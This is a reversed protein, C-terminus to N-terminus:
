DYWDDNIKLALVLLGIIVTNSVLLALVLLVLLALVLLGILECQIAINYKGWGIALWVLIPVRRRSLSIKTKMYLHIAEVLM